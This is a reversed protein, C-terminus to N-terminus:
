PRSWSAGAVVRRCAVLGTIAFCCVANAAFVSAVIFDSAVTLSYSVTALNAATFMAWTVLSVAQAGNRDRYVCMIQPMYAIIRGGNLLAFATMSYDSLTM